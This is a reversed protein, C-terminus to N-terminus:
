LQNNIYPKDIEENSSIPYTLNHYGISQKQERLEVIEM